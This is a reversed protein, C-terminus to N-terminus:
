ESKKVVKQTKVMNNEADFLTIIYMGDALHRIDIDKASPEDILRKGDISSIIARVELASEIHVTLNAPNPFITIETNNVNTIGTSGGSNLVYVASVSQCGNTDTVGVKYNGPGTAPTSFSTAGPIAVLNKYWQYTIYYNGTKLTTGTFTIPPDPLPVQTVEVSSTTVTCSAPVAISCSYLGAVTANYTSNTAGPIVVANRSWQYTVATGVGSISTSLLASGGWCFKAPTLPLATVTGVVTVTTDAHTMDTCGTTANTVRVRYGGGITAAYVTGTAGTVATGGRYWQYTFGPAATLSVVGGACFVTPGGPTIGVNPLPNVVVVSAATTTSCGTTNSIVVHYSEAVNAIYTASTAGAIAGASNYWQYTYGAGSAATFTVSSGNCFTLPGSATVVASPAPSVTITVPASVAWCGTSNTVRVTYNGGTLANYTSATAGAIPAGALEWQYTLGAGTNANMVVPTGACTSSSGGPLTITATAPVVTVSMPSSLTSCPGVSVRVQYSGAVGTIYTSSAAGPIVVGGNYWTYTVGAAASSVLTVLDGPCMTTDGLASLVAVPSAIVTVDTTRVCGTSLTYTITTTGGAIGTLVGTGSVITGTTATSSSWTGPSSTNTLTITSGPCVVSPGGIAAPLPNVSVTRTRFCGNTPHTYTINATGAASGSVVGTSAGVPANTVNSSTWTGAAPTSNLTITTGVCLANTTPTFATPIANVTVVRTTYCTTPLTYSITVTNASIGGVVGGASVTGTPNSSSTWGGGPTASNLTTTAGVCVVATGTIAAPNPNVTFVVSRTCGNPGYCVITTTGSALGSVTGSSSGITAVATNSSSWTAGVTTTSLTTNAGECVSLSGTIAAPAPNVTLVTTTYCSSAPLAYTITTTGGALGVGTAIASSSGITAVGTNSSTWTGGGVPHSLLSTTGPCLVLVGTIAAPAPNVSVVATRACGTAPITYTVTSTGTAVGNFTGPVGMTIAGSATFTWAGGAPTSGLTTSNGVCTVLNGTIATPTANVTVTSTYTCGTVPMTYTVLATGPGVPTIIGTGSGIAFVTGDGSTWAGTGSPPTTNSLTTSGGMCVALTGTTASMPYVTAVATTYCGTGLAYTITTTGATTAYNYTGTSAGITAVSVDSSSWTGGPTACSLTNGTGFYCLDLDGTIAAVAAVITVTTTRYCGTALIYSITTTGAGVGTLVGTSPDITAVSTASSSWTGGFTTSSMTLTGTICTSSGGTIAAPLPNVTLPAIRFCGSPMTYSIMTVGGVLGSALGTFPDITAVSTFSSTWTGGPTTETFTATGGQCIASPGTIGGPSVEVTVEATAVCGGPMTYSITATGITYGNIYGPTAAADAVAPDSSSWTGGAVPHSLLTSLGECITLTGAIPAPDSVTVVATAVCGSGDTYVITSTGPSVGTVVGSADITAVTVDGSSWTGGPTADTLHTSAGTCIALTGAIPSSACPPTWRYIQGDAPFFFVGTEFAPPPTPTPSTSEDPLTQWDSVNDNSIGITAGTFSFTGTSYHFDIVGTSEYLKVQFTGLDSTGLPEWNNWEVTFVRFPAIGSTQYYATGSFGDLDYWYPMIWGPGDILFEANFSATSPSNSLSIFGNSCISLSSYTSGCYNFSFGMPVGTVTFDDDSLAPLPTGTGSISVFTGSLATFGYSAATQSFGQLGLCLFSLLLYIRKM